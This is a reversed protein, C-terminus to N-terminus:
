SASVPFIPGIGERFRRWFILLKDPAAAKLRKAVALSIQFNWVYTSFAAVSAEALHRVCTDVHQREHLPLMFEYRDPDAAHKETYAQLLGAVYPLYSQDLFSNNIQVTGVIIPLPIPM